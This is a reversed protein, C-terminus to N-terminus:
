EYYGYAVLVCFQSSTPKMTGTFKWRSYKEFASMLEKLVFPQAVYKHDKLGFDCLNINSARM